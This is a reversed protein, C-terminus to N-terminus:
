TVREATYNESRSLVRRLTKALWDLENATANVAPLIPIVDGLPRLWLGEQTTAQCVRNGVRLRADFRSKKKKDAVLEVASMMGLQKIDGVFPLEKLGELAAQLRQANKAIATLSSRGQDSRGELLDLVALGAAAALPNGGYTHGHYFTKHEAFDGLFADWIRDTTLTASMALYGGTLGKGLCVLDPTIAHGAIQEEHEFAVMRGTRGMGVAIEDLILLVGYEKCLKDLGAIFGPPQMVFGAAGQICSEAIVAVLRNSHEELLSRYADLYYECAQAQTMGEPCRYSDPCPGRVVEFLLPEFVRQFMSVGSVSVTGITDGHYAQGLALFKTRQTEPEPKQHWYQFALKMAVEVASAGDGAFFVHDLGHGVAQTLRQALRITVPHSMGLNTVHAVEHLQQIIAQDIQEVRHGFLNCWLSSAGDFYKKGHIDTMWCGKAQQIILGNYHAMQSFAHWVVTRDLSHLNESEAADM